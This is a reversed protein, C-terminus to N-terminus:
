CGSMRIHSTVGDECGPICPPDQESLGPSTDWTVCVVPLYFMRRSTMAKPGQGPNRGPAGGTRHPGSILSGPGEGELPECGPSKRAHRMRLGSCPLPVQLLGTTTLAVPLIIVLTLMQFPAFPLLPKLLGLLSPLPKILVWAQALAQPFWCLPAPLPSPRQSPPPRLRPLASAVRPGLTPPCTKTVTITALTFQAPTRGRVCVVTTVQGGPM